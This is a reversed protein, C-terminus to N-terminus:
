QPPLSNFIIMNRLSTAQYRLEEFEQETIYVGGKGGLVKKGDAGESFKTDRRTDSIDDFNAKLATMDTITWEVNQDDKYKDLYAMINEYILKQSAIREMMPDDKEFKDAMQLSIFLSELFGGAAMMAVIKGRDNEELDAIINFYSENSIVELSDPNDLNNKIREMMAEDFVNSIGIDESMTVIVNFYKISEQFQAYSATYALDAIFIGMGMSKGKMDVYRDHIETSCLLEPKFEKGNAKIFEMMEHPTPVQHYVQDEIIVEEEAGEEMGETNDDVPTSEEVCSTTFIVLSFAFAYIFLKRLGLM